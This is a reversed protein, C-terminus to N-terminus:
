DQANAIKELWKEGFEAGMHIHCDPDELEKEWHAQEQDSVTHQAEWDSRRLIVFDKATDDSQVFLPGTGLQNVWHHPNQAWQQQSIIM